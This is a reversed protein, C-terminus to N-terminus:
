LAPLHLNKKLTCHVIFCAVTFQIITDKQNFEERNESKYHLLTNNSSCGETIFLRSKDGGLISACEFYPKSARDSKVKKHVMIGYFWM